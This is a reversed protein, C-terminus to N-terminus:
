ACRAAVCIMAESIRHRAWARMCAYAVTPLIPQLQLNCYCAARLRVKLAALSRSAWEFKGDLSSPSMAASIEIESKKGADAIESIELNKKASVRLRHHVLSYQLVAVAAPAM